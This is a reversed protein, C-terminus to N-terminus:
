SSAHSVLFRPNLNAHQGASSRSCAPAARPGAKQPKTSLEALPYVPPHARRRGKRPTDRSASAQTQHAEAIADVRDEQTRRAPRAGDIIHGHKCLAPHERPQVARQVRLSFPFLRAACRSHLHFVFPWRAAQPTQQAPAAISRRRPHRPRRQPVVDLLRRQLRPRPRRRGDLLHYRGDLTWGTGDRGCENKQM